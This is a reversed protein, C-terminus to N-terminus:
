LKNVEAVITELDAQSLQPHVPLSIVEKALQEAIPLQVSASLRACIIRSIRRSPISFAPASARRTSSSLLRMAIADVTSVCRTNIGCM